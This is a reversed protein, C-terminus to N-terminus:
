EEDDEVKIVIVVNDNDKIRKHYVPSAYYWITNISLGTYKSIEEITGGYVYKDGYYLAYQNPHKAKGRPKFSM